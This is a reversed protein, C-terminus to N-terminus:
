SLMAVCNKFTRFARGYIFQLSFYRLFVIVFKRLYPSFVQNMIAQFTSSANTLDFPIVLFEYHGQYTQFAIKHIDKAKVQIQHYSARLDLKSFVEVGKLEDLLENINSIPFKDKITIANM